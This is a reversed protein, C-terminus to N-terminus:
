SSIFSFFHTFYNTTHLSLKVLQRKEDSTMKESLKLNASCMMTELVSLHQLHQDEQMIYCSMKRFKRLNRTRGNVLIEGVINKSRFHLSSLKIKISYSNTQGKLYLKLISYVNQLFYSIIFFVIM